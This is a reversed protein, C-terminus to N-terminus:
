TPPAPFGAATSNLAAHAETWLARVIDGAPRATGLSAAQGAWLNIVEADGSKRAAARVPSTIHHLDPYALPAAESGAERDADLMRNRLGRARRGSFARTVATARRQTLAARHPDSTGAEPTRLFASGLMAAAAGATLVAAVARGDGIGGAAIVPIQVAATVLAILPLVGLQEGDDDRFGGRHGGGEWGQAVVADAGAREAMAAESPSTVTVAVPVGAAHLKEIASAPPLGFTFGAVAPREACMVDVKEDFSDDDHRATGLQVGFRDAERAWRQAYALLQDETVAAPPVPSFINAGIPGSTRGRAERIDAAFKEPSLYAGALFGLGGAQSVAVALDVTAPGGAMPACAIRSPFAPLPLRQGTSM